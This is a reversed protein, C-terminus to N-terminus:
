RHRWNPFYTIDQAVPRGAADRAADFRVYRLTLQCVLSDISPDGSSRAIRCNSLTGDNGVKIIVGVLGSPIGTASLRRYEFNPINSVLRAPTFRSYDGNGGGGVGSGAGGAGTGTGAVAAGSAPSSGTGAIRAAPIPSPVPIKPPPAVVPTPQAQEAPAGEAKRKRQPRAAPPPPLPPPPPVERIAITTLQEVARSVARVNLGSLIVLALLIHVAVVGAVAKAQDPRDATGRYSPMVNDQRFL